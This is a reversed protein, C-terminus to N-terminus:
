IYILDTCNCMYHKSKSLETFTGISKIKKKLDDFEYWKSKCKFICIYHGNKSGGNHIIISHLNKKSNDELILKNKIKVFTNSKIYSNKNNDYIIRNIHVFLFLATNIKIEEIKYKYKINSDDGTPKWLDNNGFENTYIHSPIYDTINLKKKSIDCDIKYIFSSKEIRETIHPTNRILKVNIKKNNTGWNRLTTITTDKYNFIINFFELTQVPESQVRQWDNQDITNNPYHLNYSVKYDNMLARLTKCIQHKETNNKGTIILYINYLEKRINEAKESLKNNVIKSNFFTDYISDDNNTFLSVLLSDIYCSNLGDYKIMIKKCNVIKKRCRLTKTNREQNDNCKKLQRGNIIEYGNKINM